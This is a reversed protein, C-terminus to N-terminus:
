VLNDTYYKGSVEVSCAKKGSTLATPWSNGSTGGLVWVVRGYLHGRKDLPPINRAKWYSLIGTAAHDNPDGSVVESALLPCSRPNWIYSANVAAAMRDYTEDATGRQIDWPRNPDLVQDVIKDPTDYQPNSPDPELVVGNNDTDYGRAVFRILGQELMADGENVVKVDAFTYSPYATTTDAVLVPARFTLNGQEDNTVGDRSLRKYTHHYYEAVIRRGNPLNALSGFNIIGDDKLWSIGTTVRGDDFAQEWVKARTADTLTTDGAPLVYASPEKFGVYDDQSSMLTTVHWVNDDYYSCDVTVTGAPDTEFVVEGDEYDITVSRDLYDYVFRKTTTGAEGATGGMSPHKHVWVWGNKDDAHWNTWVQDHEPSSRLKFGSAGVSADTYLMILVQPVGRIWESKFGGQANSGVRLGSVLNVVDTGGGTFAAIMKLKSSDALTWKTRGTLPDATASLAGPTTADYAVLIDGRFPAAANFPPGYANPDLDFWEFDLQFDGYSENDLVWYTLSASNSSLMPGYNKTGDDTWDTTIPRNQDDYLVEDGEENLAVADYNADSVENMLIAAAEDLTGDPLTPYTHTAPYFIDDWARVKETSTTPNKPIEVVNAGNVEHLAHRYTASEPRLPKQAAVYLRTNLRTTKSLNVVNGAADTLRVNATVNADTDFDNASPNGPNTTFKVKQIATATAWTIDREINTLTEGPPVWSVEVNSTNRVRITVPIPSTQAIYLSAVRDVSFQGDAAIAIGTYSDSGSSGVIKLSTKQPPTKQLWLRHGSVGDYTVEAMDSSNFFNDYFKIYLTKEGDPEGAGFSISSSAAWATFGLGSGDALDTVSQSMRYKTPNAPAAAEDSGALTLTFGTYPNPTGVGGIYHPVQSTAVTPRKAKLNVAAANQATASVEATTRDTAKLRVLLESVYNAFPSAIGADLLSQPVKVLLKLGTGVPINTHKVTANEFPHVHATAWAPHATTLSFEATVDFNHGVNGGTAALDYTVEVVPENVYTGTGQVVSVNSVTIAM